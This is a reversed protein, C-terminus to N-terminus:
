HWGSREEAPPNFHRALFVNQYLPCSAVEELFNEAGGDPNSNMFRRHGKPTFVNRREGQHGGDEARGQVGQREEALPNHPRPKWQGPLPVQGHQGSPGGAAEQGHPWAQDLVASDSPLFLGFFHWKHFRWVTSGVTNLFVKLVYSFDVFWFFCYFM